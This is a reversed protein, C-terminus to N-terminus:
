QGSTPYQYGYASFYPECRQIIYDINQTTLHQEFEDKGLHIDPSLDPLLSADEGIFSTIKAAYENTNRMVDEYAVELLRDPYLKKYEGLIKMSDLWYNISAVLSHERMVQGKLLSTVVNLPNRYIHVFKSDPFDVSLLLIGYVNQPTKDFLRIDNSSSSQRSIFTNGYAAMLDKRDSCYNVIQHYDEDEIKDIKRHGKFFDESYIAKFRPAQFPHSWRYFHTEEPCKLKPHKRLLNRLITTGSRVCGVIFFPPKRLELLKEDFVFDSPKTTLNNETM